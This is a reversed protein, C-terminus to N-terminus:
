VLLKKFDLPDRLVNKKGLCLCSTEMSKFLFHIAPTETHTLASGLFGQPEGKLDPSSRACMPEMWCFLSRALKNVSEVSRSLTWIGLTCLVSFVPRNPEPSWVLSVGGGDWVEKTGIETM